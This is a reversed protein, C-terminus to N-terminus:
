KIGDITDLLLVAEQQWYKEPSAKALTRLLTDSFVNYKMKITIKALQNFSEWVKNNIGWNLIDSYNQVEYLFNELDVYEFSMDRKSILNYMKSYGTIVALSCYGLAKDDLGKEFYYNALQCYADLNYYDSARFMSFLKEVSDIKNASIVKKMSAITSKNKAQQASSTINLLRVEMQEFDGSLRSLDAMEYLIAYKEDPVDLCDANELARLYYMEAFSYEGEIKYIDGILKLAEPYQKQGEIYDLLSTISNNFYSLGKKNVYSNIIEICDYEERTKLVEIISDIKDGAFKLERSALSQKLIKIEANVQDVRHMVANEALFLAEGYDKNDYAVLAERYAIASKSSITNQAFVSFVTLLFICSVLYKKM